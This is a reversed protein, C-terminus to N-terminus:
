VYIEAFFDRVFENRTARCYAYRMCTGCRKKAPRVKFRRGQHARILANAVIEMGERFVQLSDEVTPNIQHTKPIMVFEDRCIDVEYRNAMMTVHYKKLQQEYGEIWPDPNYGTKYDVVVKEKTEVDMGYYDVIGRFGFGSFSAYDGNALKINEIADKLQPDFWSLPVEVAVRLETTIEEKWRYKDLLQSFYAVNNEVKKRDRSELFGYNQIYDIMFTDRDHRDDIQKAKELLTHVWNGFYFPHYEINEGHERRYYKGEWHQPCDEVTNSQSNSVLYVNDSDYDVPRLDEIKM